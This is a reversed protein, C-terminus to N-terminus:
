SAGLPTRVVAAVRERTTADPRATWIACPLGVADAPIHAPAHVHRAPDQAAGWALALADYVDDRAVDARRTAAISGDAVASAGPWAAELVARRVALGEASKKRPLAAGALAAFQWEPHAEAVRRRRDGVRVMADVARIKPVLFWTQKSLRAGCAAANRDCAEAYDAAELAARTPPNFVRAAAGRGLIRRVAADCARASAADPLGIPMDIWVRTARDVLAALGDDDLVDATVVTGHVTVAFWGARCGDVGAVLPAGPDAGRPAGTTYTGTRRQTPDM